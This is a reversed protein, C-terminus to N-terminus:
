EITPFITKMTRNNPTNNANYDIVRLPTSVAGGSGFLLCRKPDSRSEAVTIRGAAIRSRRANLAAGAADARSAGGDPGDGTGRLCAGAAGRRVPVSESPSESESPLVLESSFVSESPSESESAHNQESDAAPGLGLLGPRARTRTLRGPRAGTRTLRRAWNSEAAPGM